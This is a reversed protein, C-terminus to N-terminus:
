RVEAFVASGGTGANSPNPERGRPSDRMRRWAFCISVQSFGVGHGALDANPMGPGTTEAGTEIGSPCYAREAGSM